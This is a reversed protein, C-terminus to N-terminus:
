VQQQSLRIVGLQITIFSESFDYIGVNIWPQLAPWSIALILLCHYDGTVYSVGIICVCWWIYSLGEVKARDGDVEGDYDDNQWKM